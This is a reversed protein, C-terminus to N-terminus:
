CLFVHVGLRFSRHMWWTGHCWWSRPLIKNSFWGKWTCRLSLPQRLELFPQALPAIIFWHMPTTGHVKWTTYTLTSKDSCVPTFEWFESTEFPPVLHDVKHRIKPDWRFHRLYAGLMLQTKKQNPLILRWRCGALWTAVISWTIFVILSLGIWLQNSWIGMGSSAIPTIYGSGHTSRSVQLEHPVPVVNPRTDSCRLVVLPERTSKDYLNYGRPSESPRALTRLVCWPKLFFHCM